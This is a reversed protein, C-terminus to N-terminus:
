RSYDPEMLPRYPALHENIRKRNYEEAYRGANHLGGLYFRSWVLTLLLTGDLHRDDRFADVTLYGAAANFALSLLGNWLRGAYAQGSGPLFLSMARALDPSRRPLHYGRRAALELQRAALTLDGGALDGAATELQLTTPPLDGPGLRGTARDGSATKGEPIGRLLGRFWGSAEVWRGQQLTSVGLWYRTAANIKEAGQDQSHTLLDRLLHEGREVRGESLYSQGLRLRARPDPPIPPASKVLDDSEKRAWGYHRAEVASGYINGLYFFLSMAGFLGARTWREDQGYSVAVWASSGTVLLSYLGDAPRGAYVKGAGPIASSLVAALLPSRGGTRAHGTWGWLVHDDIPDSARNTETLRYGEGACSHCRQLRDSTMLGGQVLGHTRLAERAFQSCTPQFACVDGQQPSIVKQYLSIAALLPRTLLSGGTESGASDEASSDGHVAACVTKYGATRGTERGLVSCPLFVSLVPLIIFLGRLLNRPRKPSAPPIM